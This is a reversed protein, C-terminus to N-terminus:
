VHPLTERQGEWRVHCQRTSHSGTVVHAQRTCLGVMVEKSMELVEDLKRRPKGAGSEAAGPLSFYFTTNGPAPYPGPIRGLM